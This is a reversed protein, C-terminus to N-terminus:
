YNDKQTKGSEYDIIYHGKASSPGRLRVTPYDSLRYHEICIAQLTALQKAAALVASNLHQGIRPV